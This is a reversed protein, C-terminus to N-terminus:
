KFISGYNINTAKDRWTQFEGFLNINNTMTLNIGLAISNPAYIDNIDTTDVQVENPYDNCDFTYNNNVDEFLDFNYLNGSVPENTM